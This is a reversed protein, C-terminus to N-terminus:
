LIILFFQPATPLSKSLFWKSRYTDCVARHLNRFRVRTVNRHINPFQGTENTGCMFEAASKRATRWVSCAIHKALFWNSIRNEDNCVAAHEFVSKCAFEHIRTQRTKVENGM